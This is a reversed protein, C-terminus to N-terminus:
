KAKQEKLRLYGKYWPLMKIYASFHDAVKYGVDELGEVYEYVPPDDGENLPFYSISPAELDCSFVFIHEDITIEGNALAMEIAATRMEQYAPYKFSSDVINFARYKGFMRCLERYAGPFKVHLLSELENVEENTCAYDDYDHDKAYEQLFDLYLFAPHSM